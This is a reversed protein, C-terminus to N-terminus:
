PSIASLQMVGDFFGTNGVTRRIRFNLANTAMRDSLHTSLRDGDPKDRTTVWLEPQSDGNKQQFLAEV